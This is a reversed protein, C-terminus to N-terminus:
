NSIREGSLETHRYALAGERQLQFQGMEDALQDRAGILQSLVDRHVKALAKRAALQEDNQPKGEQILLTQLKSDIQAVRAWDQQAAFQQLAKGFRAWQETSIKGVKESM